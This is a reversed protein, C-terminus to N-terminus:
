PEEPRAVGTFEFRAGGAAGETVAVTWGHAEAIQKVIALGFGTGEESKTVGAQFVHERDEPPIGPGDDELYFGDPLDGVTVTVEPGGHEVANHLLNELLQRLRSRDARVPRESATELTADATDVARWCSRVTEEIRIPETESVTAGQRALALLDDILTRIRDLAWDVEALHEDDSDTRAIDLRGEAVNLPNRLDHSIVSAFEELRDRERELAQERRKRDTIDTFISIVQGHRPSFASVEYHRDLPESYQEFRRPPGGLAVDGFVGVFPTEEIGDIVETAREGVVTEADLGTLEEFRDNVRLYVYDIPEGDDDTVVEKVGIGDISGEFLGNLLGERERDATVDAYVWMSAPEGALEYPVYDRELVRGDALVFEEGEVRERRDLAAETADVFAEPDAFKTKFEEAAHECRQGVLADPDPAVDFIECLTANAAIITRSGDEVLVGVPLNDILAGFVTRQHELERQSTRRETVDTITGVVRYPDGDEFLVIGREVCEAYSGDGRKWRYENTFRGRRETREAFADEEGALRSREAELYRSRDDPHLRDVWWERADTRQHTEFGLNELGVITVDDPGIEHTWFADTAAEAVLRYQQEIRDARETARHQEVANGIRNALVAYQSTGGGKQLYDTVGASIAESAVEESGKGTFLVFPLSPHRERVRELFEIGNAEPMDYDSVVCDVPESDIRDLGTAVDQATTVEFRGDERELFRQVLTGFEPQDDVHLIRISRKAERVRTVGTPEDKPTPATDDM